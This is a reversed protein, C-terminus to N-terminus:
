YKFEEYQWVDTTSLTFEQDNEPVVNFFHGKYCIYKNKSIAVDSITKSFLITSSSASSM